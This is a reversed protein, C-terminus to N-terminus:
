KQYIYNTNMFCLKKYDDFDSEFISPFLPQTPKLGLLKLLKKDHFFSKYSQELNKSQSMLKTGTGIFGPYIQFFKYILRPPINKRNLTLVTRLYGGLLEDGGDGSIAVKFKNSMLNALVFSPVISPDSYPEDFSDIANYIEKDVNEIDLLKSTHNTSYLHNVEDIWKKENYHENNYIMSFSNIKLNQDNLVKIISTSDIGGSLYNAVPVDSELRINVSNIFLNFFTDKSFPEDFIKDEINWYLFKDVMSIKEDFKFNIVQGPLVKFIEEVITNPSTVVGLELYEILSDENVVFKKNLKILSKLNSSFNFCNESYQYFLPKQGLRDRILFIESAKFDFFVIAFQGSVKDLFKVGETSLGNLLVETDSHSTKFAVGRLEMENRLEKHNYIEGNFMILTNFIDSYMPQSAKTSLDIISLRNFVFNFNLNSRSKFKSKFDGLIQKKEDPGRCEILNNCDIIASNDTKGKSVTGIFGCM